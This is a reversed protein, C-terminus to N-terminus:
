VERFLEDITCGFIKALIPIQEARPSTRGSEWAAITPQKLDLKEALQVQTIKKEKRLERIRM